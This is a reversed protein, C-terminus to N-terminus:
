FYNENEKTLDIWKFGDYIWEVTPEYRATKKQKKGTIIIETRKTRM